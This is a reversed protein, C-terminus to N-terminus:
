SGAQVMLRSKEMPNEKVLEAYLESSRRFLREAEKPDPDHVHYLLFTGVDIQFKAVTARYNAQSPQEAVLVELTALASYHARRSLEDENLEEGLIAIRNWTKAVRFRAEASVRSQLPIREYFAIADKLIKRRMPGVRPVDDLEVALVHGLMRDVAELAAELNKESQKQQREVEVLREQARRESAEARQRQKAEAQKAAREAGAAARARAENANAQSEAQTARVAQWASAGTGILLAAAVLAVTTLAASHRRAYKSFRYLASPPCAQVVEGALYREIDAAFGNATEYRRNRDKELAKMVIWDLEGRVTKSLRPPDTQRNAAILPLTDSTSLNTSPKLPEDERIIRLMELFAAAHLKQKDFPTSGTLLEYLLVGLSYVDSRTDVDLQNLEAQEPAMYEPTGVLQGLETFMTRESLKRATAKAVGFDIVKPVPKGDYQAVLVNTPKIDRHIVGKQHAHQIAQCVPIMLELREKVSLKKEDCYGTIPVGKVLEMVFYPQGGDTTGADFVKAINPHDMIALAQREAEFRGIVQRSDMGPKIIKLAVRREVPKTQEAMYVIGMGGEGIQQLLKFPGIVTGSQEAVSRDLSPAPDFLPGDLFSGAAEHSQLLGRVQAWLDADDGCAGNLYARRQAPTKKDLVAHFIDEAKM